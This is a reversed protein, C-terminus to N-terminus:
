DDQKNENNLNNNSSNNSDNNQNSNNSITDERVIHEAEPNYKLDFLDIVEPGFIDHMYSYMVENRIEKEQRIVINRKLEIRTNSIWESIEDISNTNEQIVEYCMDMTELMLEFNVKNIQQPLELLEDQFEDMKANLQEILEKNKTQIDAGNPSDMSSVIEDRLIAKQKRIKKSDNNLKGQRKLLNKLEEELELMHESKELGSLLKYWKNDLPLIPVNKGQLAPEFKEDVRSM